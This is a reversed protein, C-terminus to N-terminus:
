RFPCQFFFVSSPTKKCQWLCAHKRMPVTASSNAEVRCLIRFEPNKTQPPHAASSQHKPTCWLLVVSVSAFNQRERFFTLALPRSIIKCSWSGTPGGGSFENRDGPILIKDGTISRFLCCRARFPWGPWLLCGVARWSVTGGCLGRFRRAWGGGPVGMVGAGALAWLQWRSGGAPVSGHQCGRTSRCHLKQAISFLHSAVTSMTSFHPHQVPNKLNSSHRVGKWCCCWCCCPMLWSVLLKSCDQLLLPPMTDCIQTWRHPTALHVLPAFGNCNTFSRMENELKSMKCLCSCKV